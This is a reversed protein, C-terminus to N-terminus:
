KVLVRRKNDSIRVIRDITYEDDGESNAEIVTPPKRNYPRMYPDKTPDKAPELMTVSIPQAIKMRSPLNLYYALKGVRKTVEFPGARQQDLKRNEIGLIKYGLHLKLYVLDGM